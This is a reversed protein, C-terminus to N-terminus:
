FHLIITKTNDIGNTDDWTLKINAKRSSESHIAAFVEINQQRDLIEIPFKSELDDKIFIDIGSLIEIRVNKAASQGRNFIIVRDNSSYSATLDASKNARRYENEKEILLKNLKDTTEILKKQRNNFDFTRKTSYIALILALLSIIDNIRIEM